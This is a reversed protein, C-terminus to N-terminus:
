KRNAPLRPKLGSGQRRSTSWTITKPRTFMAWLPARIFVDKLGSPSLPALPSLFPTGFSRLSALHILIGLLGIMIGVGGMTGALVLLIVRLIVGADALPPVVFSAVATLAVVIVMPAGILGASVASEGIVLAGVISIAQGVPRPLRVGAERLIEFVTGMIAAEIFAPFPIGEHAAAMTFLLQTPIFEQHFTSLAVYVAPALISIFFAIFRIMRVISVLYPRSYYDESAQFSEVFVSPVTLVFPTGDVLIAARGELIKAAVVDPKESNSITAFITFPTDEIFQEIYGSELVADTSIRKLRYKVERILRPNALGKLYAICVETKTHEGIRMMVTTLNPSKIKRRLLVRNVNLTEVFGERPGRVVSETDPEDVSRGQRAKTDIVLAENFGNILLITDGSLCSDVLETVTTEKRVNGASLMATKVTDITDARSTGATDVLRSDYMLSKLISDNIRTKDALGEIFILAGKYQGTHGFNFEHVIIDSSTGMITGISNLNLNLDDYLKAKPQRGPVATQRLKAILDSIDEAIESSEKSLQKLIVLNEKTEAQSASPVDVSLKFIKANKPVKMM